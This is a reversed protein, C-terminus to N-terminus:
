GHQVAPADPQSAPNTDTVPQDPAPELRPAPAVAWRNDEWQVMLEVEKGATKAKPDLEVSAKIVYAPHMAKVNEPAPTIETITVKRAFKWMTQFREGSIPTGYATWCLRYQEYDGRRCLGIFHGVFADVQQNGSTVGPAFAV